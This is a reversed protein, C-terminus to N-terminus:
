WNHEHLNQLLTKTDPYIFASSNYYVSTCYIQLSVILLLMFVQVPSKIAHDQKRVIGLARSAALHRRPIPVHERDKRCEAEVLCLVTVGPKGTPGTEVM